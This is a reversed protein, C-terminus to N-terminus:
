GFDMGGVPGEFKVEDETETRVEERPETKVGAAEEVLPVDMEEAVACNVRLFRCGKMEMVVNDVALFVM